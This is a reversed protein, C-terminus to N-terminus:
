AAAVHQIWINPGTGCSWIVSQVHGDGHICLGGGLTLLCRQGVVMNEWMRVNCILNRAVKVNLRKAQRFPRLHVLEIDLTDWIAPM